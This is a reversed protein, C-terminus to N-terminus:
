RPRRSRPAPRKRGNLTQVRAIDAVQVFEFSDRGAAVAIETGDPARALNYRQPVRFRRGDALEIFYPRFPEARHVAMLEDITM